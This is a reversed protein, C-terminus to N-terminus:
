VPYLAVPLYSRYEYVFYADAYPQGLHTYSVPTFGRNNEALKLIVAIKREASKRSMLREFEPDFNRYLITRPKIRPMEQPFLKTNEVRNIRFGQLKGTEDLFCVGDGNNFSRDRICM